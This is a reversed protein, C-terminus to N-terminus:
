TLINTDFYRIPCIGTFYLRRECPIPVWQYCHDPPSRPLLLVALQIIQEWAKQRSATLLLDTPDTMPSQTRFVFHTLSFYWLQQIWAAIPHTYVLWSLSLFTSSTTLSASYITSGTPNAVGRQNANFLLMNTLVSTCNFTQAWSLWRIGEETESAM